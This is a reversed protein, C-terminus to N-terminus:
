SIVKITTHLTIEQLVPAMQKNILKENAEKITTHLTIEQLVPAMQKTHLKFTSKLM